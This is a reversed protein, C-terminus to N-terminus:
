QGNKTSEEDVKQLLVQVRELTKTILAIDDAFRLNDLRRGGINEEDDDNLDFYNVRLEVREIHELNLNFLHPSM